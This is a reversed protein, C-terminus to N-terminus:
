GGRRRHHARQGGSTRRRRNSTDGGRYKAVNTIAEAVLYYIAAEVAEPLREPPLPAVEVPVPAREILGNIAMDLGHTTLTAPHIGRALERLEHLAQELENDAETLLSEATANEKGIANKILRLQLALSVLRQQAGDHLNRELRRRENDTIEVIRARSDALKQYADANALAQAVLARSIRM